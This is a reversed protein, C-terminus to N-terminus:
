IGALRNRVSVFEPRELVPDNSVNTKIVMLSFHGPDPEHNAAKEAAVELWGLASETDGIALAIMAQAGANRDLDTSVERLEAVLRQVDETAGVRSYGYAFEQLMFTLRNAGMLQEGYRLRELGASTDGSAILAQALWYHVFSHPQLDVETAARLNAISEEYEGLYALVWGYTAYAEPGPSLAIKRRAVAKAEENEGLYALLYMFSASTSRRRAWAERAELWRWTVLGYSAIAENAWESDPDISLARQLNEQYQRETAKRHSPVVATGGLNSILSSVYLWAKFAYPEAFDPDLGIARDLLAFVASNDGLMRTNAAELYLAYAAPSDTAPQDIEAQEESTIEAEVAKAVNNAIDAQIDFIEEFERDYSESWLHANTRGDILQAIVLVRGDAFQVSGEMVAEVNLEDAIEQIPQDTHEYRAVSTGPVVNLSDIRALQFLIAEHIGAAFYANAPDPSLDDFPLVAISNSLVEPSARGANRAPLIVSSATVDVGGNESASPLLDSALLFGVALALAATLGLTPVGVRFHPRSGGSLLGSQGAQVAAVFRYGRGPVTMIFRNEGPTEGFVQRLASIHQNLSNEEVVIDGWVARMLAGKDLLEGPHRVLVALTDFVKPKLPVPRGDPGLLLQRTPDLCFGEFAFIDHKGPDTM